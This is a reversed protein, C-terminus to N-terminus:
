YSMTHIVQGAANIRRLEKIRGDPYYHWEERHSGIFDQAPKGDILFGQEFFKRGDAYYGFEFRHIRSGPLAAPKGEADFISQEVYQSRDNVVSKIMHIASSRLLCPKDEGNLYTAEIVDGVENRKLSIKECENANPKVPKSAADFFELKVPLGLPGPTIRLLHYGEAVNVVPKGDRGFYAVETVQNDKDYSASIRHYQEYGSFPKDDSGFLERSTEWGADNYTMVERSSLAGDFDALKGNTDTYKKEVVNGRSDHKYEEAHFRAQPSCRVPKQDTGFCSVSSIRYGEDHTYRYQHVRSKNVSPKDGNFYAVATLFGKEDYKRREIAGEMSAPKGEKDLHAKEMWRGNEYAMRVGYAGPETKMESPEGKENFCLIERVIGLHRKEKTIACGESDTGEQGDEAKHTHTEVGSEDYTIVDTNFIGDIRKAPKGEVDVFSLKAIRGQSDYEFQVAHFGTKFSNVPKGARDLFAQRAVRGEPTWYFAQRYVLGDNSDVSRGFVNFYMLHSSGDPGDSIEVRSVRNVNNFSAHESPAYHIQVTDGAKKILAVAWSGDGSVVGNKRHVVKEPKGLFSYEFEYYSDQPDSDPDFAYRGVLGDKHYQVETFYKDKCALLSLVLLFLSLSRMWLQM